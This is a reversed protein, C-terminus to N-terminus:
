CDLPALARVIGREKDLGSEIVSNPINGIAGYKQIREALTLKLFAESQAAQNEYYSRLACGATKDKLAQRSDARAQLAVDAVAVLALVLAVTCAIAYLWKEIGSSM